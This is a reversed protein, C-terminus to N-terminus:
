QYYFEIYNLYRWDKLSNGIAKEMSSIIGSCDSHKHKDSFFLVDKKFPNHKYSVVCSEVKKHEILKFVGSFLCGNRTFFTVKRKSQNDSEMFLGPPVDSFILIKTSISQKFMKLLFRRESVGGVIIDYGLERLKEINHIVDTNLLYDMVPLYFKTGTPHSMIVQAIASYYCGTHTFIYIPVDPMDSFFCCRKKFFAVSKADINHSIYSLSISKQHFDYEFHNIYGSNVPFLNIKNTTQLLSNFMLRLLFCFFYLLRLMMEVVFYFYCKFDSKDLM